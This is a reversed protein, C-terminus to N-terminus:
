GRRKGTKQSDLFLLNRVFVFSHFSSLEVKQINMETNRFHDTCDMWKNTIKACYGATSHISAKLLCRICVYKEVKEAQAFSLGVCQVHYWEDCTDCGIMQGFYVQRCLCYMRTAQLVSDVLDSVNVRLSKSEAILDNIDTMKSQIMEENQTLAEFSNKWQKGKKLESRLSTLESANNMFLITEGQKIFEKLEDLTLFASSKFALMQKAKSKWVLSNAIMAEAKERESCEIGRQKAQELLAQLDNGIAAQVETTEQEVDMKTSDSHNRATKGSNAITATDLSKRWLFCEQLRIIQCWLIQIWSGVIPHIFSPLTPFRDLSVIFQNWDLCSNTIAGLESSSVTEENSQREGTREKGKKKTSGSAITSVATPTGGTENGAIIGRSMHLKSTDAFSDDVRKKVIGSSLRTSKSANQNQDDDLLKNEEEYTTRSRKKKGSNSTMTEQGQNQSVPLDATIFHSRLVSLDSHISPFQVSSPDSWSKNLCYESSLLSRLESDDREQGVQEEEEEEEGGASHLSDWILFLQEYFQMIQFPNLDGWKHSASIVEKCENLVSMITHLSKLNSTITTEVPITDSEQSFSVVLDSVSQFSDSQQEDSVPKGSGTVIGTLFPFCKVTLLSPNKLLDMLRDNSEAIDKTFDENVTKITAQEWEKCL